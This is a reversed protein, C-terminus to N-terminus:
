KAAGGTMRSRVVSRWNTVVIMNGESVAKLFLFHTGDPMVDYNAHPNPAYQYVDALLSDRSVIRLGDATDLTAAMLHGGSRYFLRRGDRSWVPESGGGSSLQLRGGPGPFPQVVVENRGSEDTAFAVWRGNPAIRPMTEIARVDSSIAHPTTDGDVGRYYLDAGLTDLQYVIAHMDPSMVAEFVDIKEGEILSTAGASMDAARWWIASRRHSDTRYLVRKGDPTWEPRDNTSSESTLPTGTQSSLDFLWVDRRDIAGIAVALRRGDPSLRPFAYEHPEALLTRASGDLGAIVAQSAQAGTQYFLTGDRSLSARASGTTPNTAVDSVLQVPKGTLKRGRVDIPVGMIVGGTTVYTLVGDVIGLPQTGLVDFVTQEGTELSAIAMRATTVSSNTTSSYLYIGEKDVVVPADQDLEAFASSPKGLQRPQGGADSVSYMATNGSLIIVGTGSWSMGSFTGPLRALMQPRDGDVATKFLQNGRAFAIWKGDPSFTPNGADETGPLPRPTVEDLARIMLIPRRAEGLGVYALMRGDRSIALTSLGLSNSSAQPPAPIAFRVVAAPEASEGRHSLAAFGTGALAIAVLALVVPDRSRARWTAGGRAAGRVRSAASAGHSSSSQTAGQLADAYERAASWRDAPLKELARMVAYDVHEPIAKRQTHLPRPEETMVRAVIAQVTPGTFPAEGVLMEYTVAGLAYLDSRADISKEGMAQEPSMYQPTGLSLGTQTMRHGGAQQVALAIGFDAVTAHGGQLLINEPKIDRHIVGLDHAYGLADAIERAIRVADDIPLQRERELRARLTEGTVLPMVYYLLGGASGSDLLTLIHPHQLRATTRIESLFREGGLAAGLDPHLVKIAVDRDHRLDHALFVTAMGGAGLERDIRYRDALSVTLRASVDNSV